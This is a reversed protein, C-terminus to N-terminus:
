APTPDGRVASTTFKPATRFRADSGFWAEECGGAGCLGPEECSGAGPCFGGVVGCFGGWAGSTFGAGGPCFGESAVCYGDGDACSGSGSTLFVSVCGAGFASRGEGERVIGRSLVVGAQSSKRVM